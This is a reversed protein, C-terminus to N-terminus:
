CFNKNLVSSKKTHLFKCQLNRQIYILSFTSKFDIFIVLSFKLNAKLWCCFFFYLHKIQYSKKNSKGFMKQFFFKNLFNIVVGWGWGNERKYFFREYSIVTNGVDIAEGTIVTLNENKQAKKLFFNNWLILTPIRKNTKNILLLSSYAM